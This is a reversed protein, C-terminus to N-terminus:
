SKIIQLVMEINSEYNDCEDKYRCVNCSYCEICETIVDKIKELKQESQKLHKLYNVNDIVIRKEVM